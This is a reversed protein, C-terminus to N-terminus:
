HIQGNRKNQQKISALNLKKLKKVM